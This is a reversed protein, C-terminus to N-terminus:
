RTGQRKKQYQNVAANHEGLNKSFYSSGDGKAVFYMFEGPDAQLTAHIAARGPMSIPTPTLGKHVYTNFPQQERLHSRRLDGDFNEGLGYIVTPDSQLRIGRNLRNLFVRAVNMRDPAYGTEKEVISALILAEDKTQLVAGITRHRWEEDLVMELRANARRLIEIDPEDKLYHYTDPFFRGEPATRPIGLLKMLDQDSYAHVTQEIDDRDQLHKRWQRFNWGEPFTIQRQVVKGSRFLALIQKSNMGPLLEYEGAKIEGDSNTFSGYYRFLRPDITLLQQQELSRAVSGLTAGRKVEFSLSSSTSIPKAIEFLLYTVSLSFLAGCLTAAVLMIKLRASM